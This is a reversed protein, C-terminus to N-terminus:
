YLRCSFAEGYIGYFAFANKGDGDVDIVGDDVYFHEVMSAMAM